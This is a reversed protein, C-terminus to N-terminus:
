PRRRIQAKPVVQLFKASPLRYGRRALYARAGPGLTFPKGSRIQAAKEATLFKALNAKATPGLSIQTAREVM